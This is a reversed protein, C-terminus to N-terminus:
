EGPYGEMASDSDSNAEHELEEITTAILVMLESLTVPKNSSSQYKTYTVVVKLLQQLAIIADM